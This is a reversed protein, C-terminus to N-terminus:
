VEAEGGGAASWFHRARLYDVGPPLTRISYYGPYSTRDPGLVAGSSPPVEGAGQTGVISESASAFLIWM